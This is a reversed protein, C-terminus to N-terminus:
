KEEETILDVDKMWEQLKKNVLKAFNDPIEQVTENNAIKPLAWIAVAEKTTPVFCTLVVCIIGGILLAWIKRGHEEMEEEVIVYIGAIFAIALLLFAFVGFCLVLGQLRTILYIDWGTIM